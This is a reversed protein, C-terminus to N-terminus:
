LETLIYFVIYCSSKIVRCSQTSQYLQSFVELTASLRKNFLIIWIIISFVSRIILIIILTLSYFEWYKVLVYRILM